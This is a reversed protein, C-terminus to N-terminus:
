AGTTELCFAVPPDPYGLGNGDPCRTTDTSGEFVETVRIADPDACDTVVFARNPDDPAYCRGAQFNPMLCTLTSGSRLERYAGEACGGAADGTTAVRWTAADDSCDLETLAADEDAGQVVACTAEDSGDPILYRLALFALVFVALTSIGIAWWSLLVKRRSPPAPQDTDSLAPILDEDRADDSM